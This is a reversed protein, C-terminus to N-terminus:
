SADNNTVEKYKKAMESIIKPKAQEIAVDLWHDGKVFKTGDNLFRAIHGKKSFGVTTTGNIEGTIDGDVVHLDDAMHLEETRNTYHHQKAAKKIEDALVEAGARTIQGQKDVDPIKNKVKALFQKTWDEYKM